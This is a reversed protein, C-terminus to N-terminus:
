VVSKRDIRSAAPEGMPDIWTDEDQLACVIPVSLERRIRRALGLLLANSLHVVDPKGEKKLWVVLQELEAAQRGNEGRLMSLTMDEMGSARTRGAQKAAWRLIPAANLFRLWRIPFRRLLPIKERLYLSVAGFFVPSDTLPEPSDAFLPLYLPVITVDHGMELMAKVAVNDRLCNECYFSGGSGPVIHVIRM